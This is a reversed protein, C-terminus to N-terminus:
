EEPRSGTTKIGSYLGFDVSYLSLQTAPQELVLYCYTIPKAGESSLNHRKRWKKRRKALVRSVVDDIPKEVTGEFNRSVLTLVQKRLETINAKGNGGGGERNDAM